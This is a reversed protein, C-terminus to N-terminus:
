AIGQEWERDKMPFAAPQFFCPRLLSTNNWYRGPPIFFIGSGDDFTLVCYAKTPSHGAEPHQLRAGPRDTLMSVAESLSIVQFHRDALYQMQRIFVEPRVNTEYYPHHSCEDRGSVSHYMLIPIRLGNERRALRRLPYFWYVSLIRDLRM